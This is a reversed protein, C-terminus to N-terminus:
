QRNYVHTYRDTHHSFARPQLWSPNTLAGDQSESATHRDGPLESRLPQHHDWWWRRLSVRGLKLVPGFGTTIKDPNFWFTQSATKQYLESSCLWDSKSDCAVPLALVGDSLNGELNFFHTLYLNESVSIKSRNLSHILGM